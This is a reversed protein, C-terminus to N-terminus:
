DPMEFLEFPTILGSELVIGKKYERKLKKEITKVIPADLSGMKILSRFKLFQEQKFHGEGLSIASPSMGKCKVTEGFVYDKLGHIRVSDASGEYKLAGLRTKDIMPKLRKLGDDNVMVSDTDCYLVNERGATKITNWLEMRAHATVHSAIVPSSHVWETKKPGRAFVKGGFIWQSYWEGTEMNFVRGSMIINPDAEGIETIEETMQGFKGYLSNMLLKTLKSYLDNNEAFFEKRLNYLSDVWREFVPSQQYIAVESVSKIKHHKMVYIIEPTTLVANFRGIPFILREDKIGICPEDVQINLRAVILHHEVIERLEKLTKKEPPKL